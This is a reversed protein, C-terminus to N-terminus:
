QCFVSYLLKVGFPCDNCHSLRASAIAHPPLHVPHRLAATPIMFWPYDLGSAPVLRCNMYDVWVRACSSLGSIWSVPLSVRFVRCRSLRCRIFVEKLDLYEQPVNSLNVSEEQLVSRSVSSCASLLCSAHCHQSWEAVSGQGWEIRPKHEVLWPHGLVIPHHVSRSLYFSLLETHNGSIIVTISETAHTITPLKQGNLAFVSIARGLPRIPIHLRIALDWDM